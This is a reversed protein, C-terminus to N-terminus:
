SRPTRLWRLAFFASGAALLLAIAPADRWMMWMLGDKGTIYAFSIALLAIALALSANRRGANVNRVDAEVDHM